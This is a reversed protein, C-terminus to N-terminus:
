KPEDEGEEPTEAEEPSEEVGEVEDDL